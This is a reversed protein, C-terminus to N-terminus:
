QSNAKLAITKVLEALFKAAEGGTVVRHDFSLSLPLKGRTKDIRGTALIAVTPPLIIPTAFLGAFNGINSLTFTAGQFLQPSLTTETKFTNISQRLTEASAKDADKIVPVILGQPTEVALGLHIAEHCLRKQTKGDYWANLTPAKKLATCVASIISVTIDTKDTWHSIDAEEFIAAAAVEQHARQMNKAMALRIGSLTEAQSKWDDATKKEHSKDFDEEELVIDSTELKGAVTATPTETEIEILPAHTKITDKPKAFLKLVKGSYPAPIEVVAKATEVTVMPSGSKIEDGPKILWEHIIAEALGEGLDPLQFITM